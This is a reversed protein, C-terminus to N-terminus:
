LLRKLMKAGKRTYKQIKEKYKGISLSGAKQPQDVTRVCFLQRILKLQIWKPKLDNHRYDYFLDAYHNSFIDLGKTKNIKHILKKMTTNKSYNNIHAYIPICAKLNDRVMAIDNKSLYWKLESYYDNKNLFIYRAHENITVYDSQPIGIKTEDNAYIDIIEPHKISHKFLEKRIHNQHVIGLIYSYFRFHTENGNFDNLTLINKKDFGGTLSDGVHKMNYNQIIELSYETDQNPADYYVILPAHINLDIPLRM